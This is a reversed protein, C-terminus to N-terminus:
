TRISKEKTDHDQFKSSKQITITGIYYIYTDVFSGVLSM